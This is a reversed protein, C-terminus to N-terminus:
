IERMEWFFIRVNTIFEDDKKWQIGKNLKLQDFKKMQYDNNQDANLNCTLTVSSGRKATARSGEEISTGPSPSDM